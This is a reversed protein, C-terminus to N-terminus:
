LERQINKYKNSLKLIGLLQNNLESKLSSEDPIKEIERELDTALNSLYDAMWFIRHRTLGFKLKRYMYSAAIHNELYRISGSCDRYFVHEYEPSCPDIYGIGNDDIPASDGGPWDNSKAMNCFPCSYVLNKYDNEL